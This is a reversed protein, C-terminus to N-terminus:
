TSSREHAFMSFIAHGKVSRLLVGDRRRGNLPHGTVVGNCSFGKVITCANVMWAMVQRNTDIDSAFRDQDPGIIPSM